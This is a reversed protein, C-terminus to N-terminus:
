SKRKNIKNIAKIIESQKIMVRLTQGYAESVNEIVYKHPKLEEIKPEDNLPVKKLAQPCKWHHWQSPNVGCDKCEVSKLEDVAEDLEEDLKKYVKEMEKGSIKTGVKSGLEPNPNNVAHRCRWDHLGGKSAPLAGCEKCDELDPNGCVACKYEEYCNGECEEKEELGGGGGFNFKKKCMPCINLNGGGGGKCECYEKEEIDPKCRPCDKFKNIEGNENWCKGCVEDEKEEKPKAEILRIDQFKLPIVDDKVVFVLNDFLNIFSKKVRKWEGNIKIEIWNHKNM